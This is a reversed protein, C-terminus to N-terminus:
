HCSTTEMLFSHISQSSSFLLNYFVLLLQQFQLLPYIWRQSWTEFLSNIIHLTTSNKLDAVAGEM